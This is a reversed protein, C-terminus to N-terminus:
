YITSTPRLHVYSNQVGVPNAALNRLELGVCRFACGTGVAISADVQYLNTTLQATSSAWPWYPARLFVDGVNIGYDFPVTVTGATASVSTLRRFQSANAGSYGWVVGNLFTTSTWDSATTVTTGGASATTVTYKTLATGETAGGSMLSVFIMNPHTAISVTAQTGSSSQVTTYTNTDLNLGIVSNAVTTTPLAVGPTATAPTLLPIGVNSVTAAIQSFRDIRAAGGSVINSFEM